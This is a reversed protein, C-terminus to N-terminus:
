DRDREHSTRPQFVDERYGRWLNRPIALLWGIVAFAIPIVLLTWWGSEHYEEVVVVITLVAGIWALWDRHVPWDYGAYIRRLWSGPRRVRGQQEDAAVVGQSGSSAHQDRASGSEIDSM